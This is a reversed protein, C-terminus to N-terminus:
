GIGANGVDCMDHTFNPNAAEDFELPFVVDGGYINGGKHYGGTPYVNESGRDKQYVLRRLDGLRHGTLFLWFGREMFLQDVAEARTAPAPLDALEWETYEDFNPIWDVLIDAASQRLTNLMANMGAYDGAEMMAEAEILRAEVGSALVIPSDYDVYKLSRYLPIDPTFGGAPDQWWPTRPDCGADEIQPNCGNRYPLGNTGELHSQSYRGNGQLGFIPNNIGSQSFYIYREWTTPIGAVLNAAEQYQGLDVLARAKGVRPLPDDGGGAIAEDFAAIAAQLVERSTSPEAFVFEGDEAVYSLPIASCFGEGLLVMTYGQLAKLEQYERSATGFDDHNAVRESAERLARRAFQLDNYIDDSTNGDAPSRQTRQDTATRTPFSGSSFFQDAMLADVTVYSDGGGFASAFDGEAGAIVVDIVEPDELTGPNVTEPDTVDLLDDLDCGTLGLTAVLALLGAIRGLRNRHHKM